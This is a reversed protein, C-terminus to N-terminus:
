NWFLKIEIYLISVYCSLFVYKICCCKIRVTIKIKTHATWEFLYRFYCQFYIKKYLTTTEIVISPSANSNCSSTTAKLDYVCFCLNPINVDKLKQSNRWMPWSRVLTLNIKPIEWFLIGRQICDFNPHYSIAHFTITRYNLVIRLSVSKRM